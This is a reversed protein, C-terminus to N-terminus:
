KLALEYNIGIIIYSRTSFPNFFYVPVCLKGTEFGMLFGPEISKIDKEMTTQLSLGTFFNKGLSIGAETWSFIFSASTTNLSKSYQAETSVFFDGWEIASRGSLTVGEFEGASWGLMPTISLNKKAGMLFTKGMYMSFTNVEEYNYRLETYFGKKAQYHAVPMWSYSLEKSIRNYNELGSKTQGYAISCCSFLIVATNLLKKKKELQDQKKL